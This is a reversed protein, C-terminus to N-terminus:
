GVVGPRGPVASAWRQRSRTGYDLDHSSWSALLAVRCVTSGGVRDTGLGLADLAAGLGVIDHRQEDVQPPDRVPRRSKGVGDNSISPRSPPRALVAPLERYADRDVLVGAGHVVQALDRGAALASGVQSGDWSGAPSRDDDHRQREQWIDIGRVDGGGKGGFEASECFQEVRELQASSDTKKSTPGNEHLQVM